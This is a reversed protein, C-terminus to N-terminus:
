CFSLEDSLALKAEEAQKLQEENRQLKEVDVKPALGTADALWSTLDRKERPPTNIQIEPILDFSYMPSTTPHVTEEPSSTANQASPEPVSPDNNQVQILPANQPIRNTRLQKSITTDFEAHTGYVRPPRPKPAVEPTLFIYEPILTGPPLIDKLWQLANFKENEVLTFLFQMDITTIPSNLISFFSQYVDTATTTQTYLIQYKQPINLTSTTQRHHAHISLIRNVGLNLTM